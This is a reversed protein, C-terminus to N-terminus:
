PNLLGAVQNVVFRRLHVAVRDLRKQRRQLMAGSPHDGAATHEIEYVPRDSQRPGSGAADDRTM